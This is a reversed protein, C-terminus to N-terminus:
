DVGIGPSQRVAEQEDGLIDDSLRIDTQRFSLLSDPPGRAGGSKM